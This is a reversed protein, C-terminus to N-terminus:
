VSRASPKRGGASSQAAVDQDIAGFAFALHGDIVLAAEEPVVTIEPLGGLRVAHSSELGEMLGGQLLDWFQAGAGAVFIPMSGHLSIVRSLGNGLALGAQRFARIAQRGGRRAQSAIKEVEPLPVFNAPPKDAPVGFAERLIAYFGAYAEICGRAGCRCLAGDPAHLMHSFNPASVEAQGATASRAIGLGISHGLSLAALRTQGAPGRAGVGALRKDEKDLLASAVLLTENNLAIRTGPAAARSFDVPQAGFVPSWLLVPREPDVIGKSSVSVFLLREESISSRARLRQLGGKLDALFRDPTVPARATTFRDLLTGAYDVLSYQLSDSSIVVLALYGFVHQQSFLIRPRGRGMAPLSEIRKIVAARELDATIASVTASSLGVLEAIETHALRGHRRLASLVLVNNQQRVLEPSAKAAIPVWDM